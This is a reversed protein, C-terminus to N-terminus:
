LVRDLYHFILRIRKVLVPYDLTEPLDGPKNNLMTIGSTFMVSPVKNELFIKQDSIKRYFLKTFDKSGYYDYAIELNIHQTKSAGQLTERRCGSEESLMILYDPNGKTLPAETGGLQDLNVVLSVDSASFGFRGASIRQWLDSAGALDEEKADLAVFLISKTYTKHCEKMRAFMRAIQLLAAVGSANSDAGPYFTGSIKGLNDYHAMVIVWESGSGPIYGLVNRGLGGAVRFGHLYTGGFSELSAAAFESGIWRAANMAGETGTARGGQTEDCLRAVADRVYKESVASEANKSSIVYSRRQAGLASPLLLM